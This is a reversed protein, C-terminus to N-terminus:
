KIFHKNKEIRKPDSCSSIISYILTLKINM